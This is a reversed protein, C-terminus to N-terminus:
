QLKTWYVRKFFPGLKGKVTLINPNDFYLEVNYVKGSTPDYIKGENWEQDDADYVVRDILVIQNSPTNRKAPNPNKQDTRPTGDENTMNELWIVQARYGGQHKFIKVKSNRGDKKASYIGVIKDAPNQALLFSTASFFLLLLSLIKQM